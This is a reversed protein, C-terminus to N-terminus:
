IFAKMHQMRQTYTTKPTSYHYYYVHVAGFNPFIRIWSYSPCTIAGGDVRKLRGYTVQNHEVLSAARYRKPDRFLNNLECYWSKPCELLSIRITEQNKLVVELVGIHFLFFTWLHGAAHFSPSCFM